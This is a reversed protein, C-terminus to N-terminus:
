LEAVRYFRQNDLKVNAGEGRVHVLQLVLLGLTVLFLNLLRGLPEALLKELERIVDAVANAYSAFADEGREGQM